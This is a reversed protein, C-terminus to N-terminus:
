VPRHNYVVWQMVARGNNHPRPNFRAMTFNIAFFTLSAGRGTPAFHTGVEGGGEGSSPGGSSTGPHFIKGVGTTTYGNQKFYQPLTVVANGADMGMTQRFYPGITWVGTTDPRLGTLLSTRSPSCLAVQCYAKLFTTSRNALRELNPTIIQTQGYNGAIEPRLDDVGIFLVNPRSSTARTLQFLLFLVVLMTSHPDLRLNSGQGSHIPKKEPM